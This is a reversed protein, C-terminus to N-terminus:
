RAATGDSGLEHLLGAVLPPVADVDTGLELEFSPVADVLRKMAELASQGATHLQVITSPALAALARLASVPAVRSAPGGTIRPLLIARLPFGAVPVDPHLEHLYLVTKESDFPAVEDRAPRVIGSGMRLGPFRALHHPEVKASSYLSHVYPEPTVTAAVYDDGAYAMGASACA